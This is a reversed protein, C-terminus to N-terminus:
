GNQEGDEGDMKAGCRRCYTSKTGEPQGCVSCEWMRNDFVYKAQNGQQRPYGKRLKAEGGCFPCPKLKIDVM